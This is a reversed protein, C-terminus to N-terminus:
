AGGWGPVSAPSASSASVSRTNASSPGHRTRAELGAERVDPAPVFGTCCNGCRTCAFCLGDQYWPASV